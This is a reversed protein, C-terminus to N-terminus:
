RPELTRSASDNPAVSELTRKLKTSVEIETLLTNQKSHARAPHFCQVFCQFQCWEPTDDRTRWSPM